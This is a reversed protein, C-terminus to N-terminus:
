LADIYLIFEDPTMDGKQLSEIKALVEDYTVNFMAELDRQLNRTLSGYEKATLKRTIKEM